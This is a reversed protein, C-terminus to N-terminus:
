FKNALFVVRETNWSTRSQYSSEQTRKMRMILFISFGQKTGLIGAAVIRM